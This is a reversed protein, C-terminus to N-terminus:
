APPTRAWTRASGYRWARRARRAGPSANSFIEDFDYGRDTLWKRTLSLDIRSTGDEDLPRPDVAGSKSILWSQALTGEIANDPAGDFVPTVARFGMTHAAWGLHTELVQGLNM